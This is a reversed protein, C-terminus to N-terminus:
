GFLLGLLMLLMFFALWSVALILVPKNAEAILGIYPNDKIKKIIRIREKESVPLKSSDTRSDQGIWTGCYPCAKDELKIKKRCNPCKM